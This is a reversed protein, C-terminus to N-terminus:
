ESSSTNVDVDVDTTDRVFETPTATPNDTAASTRSASLIVKTTSHRYALAALRTERFEYIYVYVNYVYLSNHRELKTLKTIFFLFNLPRRYV